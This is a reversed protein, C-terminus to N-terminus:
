DFKLAFLSFISSNLLNSKEGNNHDYDRHWENDSDKDDDDDDDHGSDEFIVNESNEAFKQEGEGSIIPDLIKM